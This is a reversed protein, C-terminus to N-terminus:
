EVDKPDRQDPPRGETAYNGATQLVPADRLFNIAFVRLHKDVKSEPLYKMLADYYRYLPYLEFYDVEIRRDAVAKKRIVYVRRIASRLLKVSCTLPPHSSISPKSTRATKKLRLRNVLKRFRLRRKPPFACSLISVASAPDAFAYGRLLINYDKEMISRLSINEELIDPLDMRYVSALYIMLDLFLFVYVDSHIGNVM